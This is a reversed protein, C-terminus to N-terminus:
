PETQAGVPALADRLAFIAEDPLDVAVQEGCRQSTGPARIILRNGTLNVYPPYSNWGSPATWAFQIADISSAASAACPGEHGKARSCSWGAPPVDCHEDTM